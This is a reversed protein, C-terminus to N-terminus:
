PGAEPRIAYNNSWRFTTELWPFAQFTFGVRDDPNKISVTAALHGDPLVRATRTDLLGVGGYQSLTPVNTNNDLLHFLDEAADAARLPVFGLAAAPLCRLLRRNRHRCAM